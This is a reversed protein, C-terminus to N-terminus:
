GPSARGSSPLRSGTSVDPTMTHVACALPEVLTALLPDTGEPLPFLAWEPVVMAEAYGFAEHGSRNRCFWASRGRCAECTGCATLRNPEIAALTTNGASGPVAVAIEHGTFGPAPDGKIGVALEPHAWGHLDSGCIGCALVKVAVQGAVEPLEVDEIELRRPGRLYAAKM